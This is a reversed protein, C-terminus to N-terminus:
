DIEELEVPGVKSSGPGPEVNSQMTVNSRWASARESTTQEDQIDMFSTRRAPADIWSSSVATKISKGDATKQQGSVRRHRNERVIETAFSKKRGVGLLRTRSRITNQKLGSSVASKKALRNQAEWDEDLKQMRARVRCLRRMIAVVFVVHVIVWLGILSFSLSHDVLQLESVDERFESPLRSSTKKGAKLLRGFLSRGGSATGTDIADDLAGGDDDDYEEVGLGWNSLSLYIIGIYYNCLLQLAQFMIVFLTYRDLWTMYSIKPLQDNAMVMKMAVCTLILTLLMDCRVYVSTIPTVPAIGLGISGIIFNILVLNYMYIGPHREITILVSYVSYPRNMSYDDTTEEHQPFHVTWEPCHVGVMPSMSNHFAKENMARLLVLQKHETPRFSVQLLQLDFPFKVLDYHQYITPSLKRAYLVKHKNWHPM